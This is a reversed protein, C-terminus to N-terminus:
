KNYFITTMKITLHGCFRARIQFHQARNKTKHSHISASADHIPKAMLERKAGHISNCRIDHGCPLERLKSCNVVRLTLERLGTAIRQTYLVSHISASADHIPKAM